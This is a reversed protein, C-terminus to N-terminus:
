HGCTCAYEKFSCSGCNSLNVNLRERSMASGAKTAINLLVPINNGDPLPQESLLTGDTQIKFKLTTPNMRDGCIVTMSQGEAPIVQQTSNLFSVQIHRSATVFFEFSYNKSTFIKGGNPGAQNKKSVAKNSQGSHDHASHDHGSHDHAHSGGGWLGFTSCSVITAAVFLNSKKM